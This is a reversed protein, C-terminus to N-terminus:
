GRGAAAAFPAPAVPQAPAPAFSAEVGAASAHVPSAALV